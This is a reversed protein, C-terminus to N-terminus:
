YYMLNKIVKDIVVYIFLIDYSTVRVIVISNIKENINQYFWILRSMECLRLLTGFGTISVFIVSVRLWNVFVDLYFRFVDFPLIISAVAAHSVLTLLNHRSPTAVYTSMFISRFDNKAYYRIEM